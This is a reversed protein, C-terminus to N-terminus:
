SATRLASAHSAPIGGESPLRKGSGQAPPLLLGMAHGATFWLPARCTSTARRLKARPLGLLPALRRLLESTPRKLFFFFFTAGKFLSEAKPSDLRQKENAPQSARVAGSNESSTKYGM